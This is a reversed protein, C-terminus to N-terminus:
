QVPVEENLIRTGVLEKVGSRITANPPVTVDTFKYRRLMTRGPALNTVLREQRAHGPFIAFASYDIPKNGYNSIMQQVLVDNGDRLAMTQIGVDSLGLTVTIPVTFSINRDAQVVFQAEISKPGAFSNYPFEITQERDFAEGPNLNFTHTPPNLTWGAPAKLKMQGSIATRYPNTFRVRRTHPEFSSELLPNDVAVSARMQALPADVNVLITPMAGVSLSMRGDAANDTTAMLPSLNGWLDLRMPRQGLDITVQKVAGGRMATGTATPMTSRDWM